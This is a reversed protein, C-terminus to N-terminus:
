FGESHTLRDLALEVGHFVQERNEELAPELVQRQQLVGFDGRKGTVKKAGQTVFVSAGRARPRVTSVKAGGYRSLKQKATDAVPQAAQKLEKQVERTVARDLKNFARVTERLGTIRVAGSAM